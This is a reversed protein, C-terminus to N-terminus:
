RPLSKSKPKIYYRDIWSDVDSIKFRIDKGETFFGIEHKRDRITRETYGTLKAVDSVTLLKRKKLDANERALERVMRQSERFMDCLDSLANSDIVAVSNM